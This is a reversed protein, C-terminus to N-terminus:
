RFYGFFSLVAGIALWVVAAIIPFQPHKLFRRGVKQTGQPIVIRVAGGIALLWGLVTILVRWDLAWVNHTLVIAVGAAMTLLGSLYVLATSDLFEAALKKYVAANAILGIGVALFIPGMLKALFVSSQM